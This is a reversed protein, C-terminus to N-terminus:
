DRVAEYRLRAGGRHVILRKEEAEIRVGTFDFVGMDNPTLTFSLTNAAAIDIPFRSPPLDYMPVSLEVWIPKRKEEAPLSWGDEQTYDAVPEGEAFGVRLDVGPIGRGDPWSVKLALTADGTRAAAGATFAPPVPKPEVSLTVVPGEASWRGAAREDLAGAILFYAFGGDKNLVLESAVDQEGTLRYRGPEVAQAAAPAAAALISAILIGRHM